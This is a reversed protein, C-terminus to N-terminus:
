CPTGPSDLFSDLVADMASQSMPGDDEITARKKLENVVRTIAQGRAQHTLLDAIKPRADEFSTSEGAEEATKQIIHCGLPTQFPASVDGVQMSFLTDDFEPLTVGRTLWGLSGGAKRGSPCESHAEALEAFDAGERCQQRLQELRTFTADRAGPTKDAPKLLIHRVQVRASASFAGPNKEYYERVQAEDPAEIHEIIRAVFRDITRGDRIGTRLAAESLKQHLLLARFKEDGGSQATMERIRADIEADTVAIGRRRAELLLLKAGIVQERAKALLEPMQKGLAARPIHQSFFQMLRRLEVLVAQEPIVEGNVKLTM